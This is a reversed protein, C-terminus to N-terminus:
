WEVRVSLNRGELSGPPEQAIPPTNIANIKEQVARAQLFPKPSPLGGEGEEFVSGIALTDQNHQALAEQTTPVPPAPPKAAPIRSMQGKRIREIGKVADRINQFLVEGELVMIGTTASPGTGEVWLIFKTGRAAAVATPTHIELESRGVVVKLSGEVLRYISKTRDEDGSRLYEEVVVQSMEGLNLISDDHFFLKTRSKEATEVADKLLLPSRPKADDKRGERILYVDKKVTLVLGAEEASCVDFIGLFPGALFLIIAVRLIKM